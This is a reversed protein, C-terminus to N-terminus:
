TILRRDPLCISMQKEVLKVALIHLLRTDHYNLRAQVDNMVLAICYCRLDSNEPKEVSRQRDRSRISWIKIESSETGLSQPQIPM